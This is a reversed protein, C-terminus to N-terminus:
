LNELLSSLLHQLTMRAQNDNLRKALNSSKLTLNTLYNKLEAVDESKDLVALVAECDEARIKQKSLIRKIKTKTTKNKIAYLIPLPLCENKVRNSLEDFDFIDVYDARIILLIGLNRGIESLIEIENPTAGGYIAGIKMRGEIDAAKKTLVRLYTEAPVSWKKNKLQSEVLHADVVEILFAEVANIIKMQQEQGLKELATQLYSFGKVMFADGLLLAAEKGLKGYVTKTEKKTISGDIIDDHIDMTVDILLLATQLNVAGGSQGGVIEYSLALTGPRTSDNWKTIYRQIVQNVSESSFKEGLVIKKAAQIAESSRQNLQEILVKASGQNSM